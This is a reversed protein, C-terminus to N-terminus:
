VGVAPLNGGSEHRQVLADIAFARVKAHEDGLRAVIAQVTSEELRDRLKGLAEVAAMRVREHEDDLRAVIAHVTSEDFRDGLKGLAALASERIYWHEDDLRAVIAQVTSEDFRDGLKGLAALASRRIRWHEDYLRAVIAHRVAEDLHDGLSGLADLAMERMWDQEDGLRAVLAQVAAENPRDGLKALAKFTSARVLHDADNLRTVLAKIALEDLFQGIEGLTAVVSSRVQSDQDGLRAVIQQVMSEDLRNGLKALAAAAWIRGGVDEGALRALVAQVTSEDLRDSLEGLAKFASRCVQWDKDDLRAVIAQLAPEDLRNGVAGLAEVASSRVSEVEDGLRAVLAQSTPEDIRYGVAALAQAVSARVYANEDGLRAVLARVASGDLREGLGALAQAVSARVYVNEDGLRTVLARVASEDLRGGYEALAMVADERVRYDEHGLWAELAQLASEGIRDGLKGILAIAYRRVQGGDDGLLAVIAQVMSEDLRDILAQLVYFAGSQVRPHKDSLRAVLARMMSADLRDGLAGLVNVAFYRLRWRHHSLRAVLTQLTSEYLFYQLNGLALVRTELVDEDTDGQWDLLARQANVDAWRGLLGLAHMARACFPAQDALGLLRKRIDEIRVKNITKIDGACRAALFLNSHIVNDGDALIQELLLEGQLGALFRIVEAWKPHWREKLVQAVLEPRTAAHKAALYEQFSQHTFHLAEEGSDLIRNVLGFAILDRLAVIADDIYTDIPVRQIHPKTLALAEFAFRGLVREVKGVLGPEDQLRVNPDHKTLVHKVFQGYLESRTAEQPLTGAVDLERVMYALMPVQTLDPAMACAARVAAYRTGFYHRQDRGSFPRLRLFMLQPDSEYALNIASPRSSILVPHPGALSFALKAVESPREGGIQDLGDFLLVLRGARRAEALADHRDLSLFDDPLRDALVALLEELSKPSLRELEECALVVPVHRTRRVLESALWQLLTTKGTGVDASLIFKGRPPMLGKLDFSEWTRGHVQVQVDARDREEARENAKKVQGADLHLPIFSAHHLKADLTAQAQSGLHQRIREFVDHTALLQPWAALLPALPVVFAQTQHQKAHVLGIVKQTRENFVPAGSYGADVNDLNLGAIPLVSRGSVPIAELGGIQGRIPIGSEQFQGAPYGFSRLADRLHLRGHVELPLVPWAGDGPGGEVAGLKLVALDAAEVSREVVLEAPVMRGLWRVWGKLSRDGWDSVVHWCTLAYGDVDCIFGTGVVEEDLRDLVQVLYGRLDTYTHPM